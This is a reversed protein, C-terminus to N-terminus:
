FRDALLIRADLGLAGAPTVLLPNVEIEDIEPHAAAVRSVSALARGAAAVDLEPRGRAGLLLPAGRLTRILAEAATQEIPALAVAVDELLEAYLGGIGVLAIPGFRPDCRAGVILEIGEGLPAMREVSYGEPSLATAMDSFAYRLEAEAPIGVAVGGADSKHLVGLAKLVVPYGLEAAAAAAAHFTTVRRAPVFPVGGEELLDRAEFYGGGRDFAARALQADPAPVPLAPVGTPPREIRQVLRVLAAVAAETEGYVPVGEARFAAATSGEPYMTQVVLPKRAERAARAMGRATETELAEYTPGYTGYGGFYGTLLAADVDDSGLVLRTVDAFRRIEREGAGAFDVPNGTVATPGLLQALASVLRDDLAPLELGSASALDAAVVGHGGGDGFVVIRRTRPLDGVLLAQATDVLEKPTSVHVIGAARCAADVAVFGSVLAGTHSRAARTAAESRGAALLVVPKGALTAEHCAAAFSRGDRFDEVYLAIVHTEEHGAIARVLDTVDLDAQNGLSAFRSFGLGYRQTVLALELALNGSQSIFGIPGAPLESWGIDLDASSDFVGLCNPGLLVAGAERVREVVARERALGEEGMEGLGATIGVIARAGADLAEDVAREFGSEPVAVVVLEPPEPVDSVSTYTRVGLVEAGKRNVLFVPRRDRGRLAGRALGYGWKMPDDSAGVVAVSRPDFLPRLDRTM